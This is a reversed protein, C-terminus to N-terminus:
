KSSAPEASEASATLDSVAASRLPRGERVRSSGGTRWSLSKRPCGLYFDLDSPSGARTPDAQARARCAPRLVDTQHLPEEAATTGFITQSLSEIGM